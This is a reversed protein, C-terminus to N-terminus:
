KTTSEVLKGKTYIKGDTHVYQKKLHWGRPFKDTDNASKNSINTPAILMKQVCMGCTIAGVDGSVEVEVVNCEKCTLYKYESIKKLNGNFKKNRNKLAM